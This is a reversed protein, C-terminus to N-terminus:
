SRKMCRRGYAGLDDYEVDPLLYVSDDYDAQTNDEIVVMPISEYLEVHSASLSNPQINKLVHLNVKKELKFVELMNMVCADDKLEIMDHASGKGEYYVRDCGKYGLDKKIKDMTDLYSILDRDIEDVKALNRGPDHVIYGVIWMEVVM